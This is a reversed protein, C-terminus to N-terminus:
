KSDGRGEVLTIGSCSCVLRHRFDEEWVMKEFSVGGVLFVFTIGVVVVLDVCSM